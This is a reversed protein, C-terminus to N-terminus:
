EKTISQLKKWVARGYFVLGIGVLASAIGSALDGAGGGHLYQEFSWFGFSFALLVSATVFVIHFVKLSM